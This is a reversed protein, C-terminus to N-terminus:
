TAGTTAALTIGPVSRSVGAWPSGVMVAALGLGLASGAASSGSLPRVMFPGGMCRAPAGVGPVASGTGAAMTSRLLVGLSMASGLGAGHALMTGTAMATLHGSPISMTLHGSRATTPSNAGPAMITWTATASRTAPYMSPRLSNDEKLDRDQAWRDM